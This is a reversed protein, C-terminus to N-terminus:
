DQAEDAPPAGRRREVFDVIARGSANLLPYARSDTMWGPRAAIRGYLTDYALNAALFLLTAIILGKLVGFGGGLVRDVPGVVSKRTSAGIRGALLKGAFFVIGFLLVFALVAAGAYTGVPETLWQTLPTHFAKLAIIAAVWAFLSLIECVFGRLFGRVLGGGVLVLTIIDLATM